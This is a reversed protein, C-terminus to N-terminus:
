TVVSWELTCTKAWSTDHYFDALFVCKLCYGMNPMRVDPNL